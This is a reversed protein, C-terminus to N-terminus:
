EPGGQSARAQPKVAVEATSPVDHWKEENPLPRPSYRYLYVPRFTDLELRRVAKWHPSRRLHANVATFIEVARASADRPKLGAPLRGQDEPDCYAVALADPYAEMRAVLDAAIEASGRRGYSQFYSDHIAMFFAPPELAVRRGFFAQCWFPANCEYFFLGYHRPGPEAALAEAVQDFAHRLYADSRGQARAMVLWRNYHWLSCGVALLLLVAAFPRLSLLPRAQSFDCPVLVALLVVLLPHWPMLFWPYHASTVIIALPLGGALWLGVLVEGRYRQWQRFCLLCLVCSGGLALWTRLGAWGACRWVYAAISAASGYQYCNVLYYRYLNDWQLSAVLAAAALGPLCACALDLLATRCGERRLRRWAALAFLPGFLLCAYVALATRQMGLLALLLGCLLAWGRRRFGEALLWALGAGALLWTALNDKWYDAMGWTPHYLAPMAFVFAAVALGPLLSGSRRWVFWLLLFFFLALFPLLVALHGYFLPLLAPALLLRLAVDLDDKTRLASLLAPGLGQEHYLQYHHVADAHYSASDDHHTGRLYYASNVRV